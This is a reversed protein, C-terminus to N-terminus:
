QNFYLFYFTDTHAKLSCYIKGLSIEIVKLVLHAANFCSYNYTFFDVRRISISRGTLFHDSANM